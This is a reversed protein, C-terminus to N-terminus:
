AADATTRVPQTAPSQRDGRRREVKEARRVAKKFVLRRSLTFNFALGCISGAAVGLIPWQAVLGTSAVLSAYVTYNVLGGIGNVALFGAWQRRLGRRRREKFTFARNFLFAYTNGALFSVVRGSYPDLGFWLMAQLVIVDVVFAGTGVIAFRLLQAHSSASGLVHGAAGKLRGNVHGWPRM